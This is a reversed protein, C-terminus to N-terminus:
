HSSNLRTSKRDVERGAPEAPLIRADPLGARLPCWRVGLCLVVGFLGRNVCLKESTSRRAPLFDSGLGWLSPGTSVVPLPTHADSHVFRHCIIAPRTFLGGTLASVCLLLCPLSLAEKCFPVFTSLFPILPNVKPQWLLFSPEMILSRFLM